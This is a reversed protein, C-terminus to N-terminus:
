IENGHQDGEAQKIQGEIYNLYNFCRYIGEENEIRCNQLFVESQNKYLNSINNDRDNYKRLLSIICDTSLKIPYKLHEEIRNDSYIKTINDPPIKLIQLENIENRNEFAHLMKEPEFLSLTVLIAKRRVENQLNIYQHSLNPSYCLFQTNVFYDYLITFIEQNDYFNTQNLLILILDLINKQEETIYTPIENLISKIYQNDFKKANFVFKENNDYSRLQECFVKLLQKEQILTEMATKLAQPTHEISM